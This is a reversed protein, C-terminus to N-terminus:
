VADTVSPHSRLIPPIFISPSFRVLRLAMKDVMFGVHLPRLASIKVAFFQFVAARTHRAKCSPPLVNKTFILVTFVQSYRFRVPGFNNETGPLDGLTKIKQSWYAKKALSLNGNHGPNRRRCTAGYEDVVTIM